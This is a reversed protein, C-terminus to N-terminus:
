NADIFLKATINEGRSNYLKVFYIGSPLNSKVYLKNEGCNMFNKLLVSGNLGLIEINVLERNESLEIVFQGKSPNPYVKLKVDANWKKVADFKGAKDNEAFEIGGRKLGFFMEPISDGNIDAIAPVVQQGMYPKLTDGKIVQYLFSEDAILSDTYDHNHFHYLRPTGFFTGLVMEDIGDKNLDAIRPVANGYSEFGAPSVDDRWLNSRLGWANKTVLEFQPNSGGLGKFIAVKGNYMGIILDKIQDNNYDYICPAFANEGPYNEFNLLSSTRHKFVCPKNKGATNEYWIIKGIGTGILIDIDGDNDIDGSTPVINQFASDGFLFDSNKLTFQPKTTTGTNEFFAIKDKIGSSIEFDGNNGVLLDLDGDADLDIFTPASRAGFDLSKEVLFSTNQLEFNASKKSGINKYYYIQNTEKVDFAGNPALVLDTLSDDNVNLMYGAPFVFGKFSQGKVPFMTDWAIMTDYYGHSQAKGNTLKTIKKYGVNSIYMEYDGDNDDDFFWCSAGGNHRPKLKAKFDKNIIQIVCTNLKINNDYGEWFNGFCYDMNQFEFTDNSWKKEARVDRFMGYTLNVADYTVIDLDGDNDLDKIEPLDTKTSSFSLGNYLISGSDYQNRYYQPGLDKFELSGGLKTTNLSILLEGGDALTFIDLKGDSNLDAFKYIHKGPPFLHEYEPAYTFKDGSVRLFTMIRFDSRDFAIIDTKGDDNLDMMAFQPSNMGGVFPSELTKGNLVFDVYGKKSYRIQAKVTYGIVIFLLLIIIRLYRNSLPEM